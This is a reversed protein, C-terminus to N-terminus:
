QEGKELEILKGNSGVIYIKGNPAISIDNWNEFYKSEVSNWNKGSNSSLLITGNNGIIIVNNKDIFKVKNLPRKTVGVISEWSSGGDTTRLITGNGGICIGLDTNFFDISKLYKTTNSNLKSWTAGADVTKLLIGNFGVIFAINENNFHIDFLLENTKSEVKNWKKGGDKSILILGESGVIIGFQENIFEISSLFHSKDLISYWQKNGNLSYIFSSKDGIFIEDGNQFKWLDNLKVKEDQQEVGWDASLNIRTLVIASDGAITFKSGDTIISNLTYKTKLPINTIQSVKIKDKTEFLTSISHEKFVEYGKYIMFDKVQFFVFVILLLFLTIFIIFSFISKKKSLIQRVKKENFYNADATKLINDFQQIDNKVDSCTQYREEQKKKLLKGVIQDLQPSVNPLFTTLSIPNEKLHGEMVEFENKSDFPPQGTLMDYITCGISYIDSTKNVNKGKIQEPSMYYITGIRASTQALDSEGEVSKSIGFDMIKVIGESNVIINSPKIDRHIFGKSHAYGIGDLLQNMIFIVDFIHLHHNRFIVKELSEGDVYEMVIGFQSDFEIFGYVTVINQHILQAHNRAELKFREIMKNSNKINPANLVKIAVNRNLKEDFAKYVVGMGGKGLLSIIKFNEIKRNILKDM